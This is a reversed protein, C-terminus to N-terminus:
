ESGCVASQKFFMLISREKSNKKNGKPYFLYYQFLRGKIRPWKLREKEISAAASVNVAARWPTTKLTCVYGYMCWYSDPQPLMLEAWWATFTYYRWVKSAIDCLIDFLSGCSSRFPLDLNVQFTDPPSPPHFANQSPFAAWSDSAFSRKKQVTKTRM